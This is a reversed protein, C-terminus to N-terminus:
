RLVREDGVRRTVRREDLYGVLALAYKRSTGFMDRVQAVTISENAKLYGVIRDRMEEYTTALLLVDESLKVLKGQELLANLVETGVQKECQSVSPTAYPEQQFAYLLYDVAQQQEASFTVQHASLQIRESGVDTEALWGEGVARNVVENLLRPTLTPVYRALRSKVEERPMGTRLPYQRHYDGLLVEIRERMAGWGAGTILYGADLITTMPEPTEPSSSLILVQGKDVLSELSDRAVQQSLATRRFLDRAECPQQRELDQLLIEEPTGHALTELRDIV